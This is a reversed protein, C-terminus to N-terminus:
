HQLNAKHNTKKVQMFISSQDLLAGVIYVGEGEEDLRTAWFVRM